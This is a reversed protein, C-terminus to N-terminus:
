QAILLGAALAAAGGLILNRKQRDYRDKKAQYEAIKEETLADIENKEVGYSEIERDLVAIQEAIRRLEAEGQKAAAQAKLEMRRNILLRLGKVALGGVVFAVSGLREYNV